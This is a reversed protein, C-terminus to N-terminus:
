KKCVKVKSYKIVKDKLTYGKMLEEIIEGNEHDESNEAMLAEHKFPDFKEGDTPIEDLGEKELTNKIKSYVLEVGERIEKETNSKKLVREIDEYSDLLNIIINETAFKIINQNRKETHKKFNEFDAQLRQLHSRYEELENNKKELDKEINVLKENKEKLEELTEKLEEEQVKSNSKLEDLEKKLKKLKADNAMLEGTLCSIFIFFINKTM